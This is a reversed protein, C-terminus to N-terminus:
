ESFALYGNFAINIVPIVSLIGLWGVGLRHDSVDMWMLVVVVLNVYPILLLFLFWTPRDAMRWLLYINVLPIWALWSYETNTKRAIVQMTYSFYVYSGLGLIIQEILFTGWFAGTFLNWLLSIIPSFM